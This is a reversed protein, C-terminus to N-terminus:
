FLWGILWYLVVIVLLGFKIIASLSATLTTNPFIKQDNEFASLIDLLYMNEVVDFIGAVFPALFLWLGISQALGTLYLSILLTLSAFLLAYAPIFWFDLSLNARAIDIGKIERGEEDTEIVKDWAELVSEVTSQRFHVLEFDIIGFGLKKLKQIQVRMPRGILLTAMLSVLSVLMVFLPHLDTLLSFM